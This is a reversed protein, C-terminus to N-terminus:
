SNSFVPCAQGELFGHVPFNGPSSTLLKAGVSCKVESEEWEAETEGNSSHVCIISRNFIGVGLIYLASIRLDCVEQNGWRVGYLSDCDFYFHYSFITYFNNEHPLSIAQHIFTNTTRAQSDSNLGLFGCLLWIHQWVDTSMLLFPLLFLLIAEFTGLRSSQLLHHLSLSFFFLSQRLVFQSQIAIRLGGSM